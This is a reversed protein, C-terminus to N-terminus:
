PIKPHFGKPSLFNLKCINPNDINMIKQEQGDLNIEFARKKCFNLNQDFNKEMKPIKPKSIKPKITLVM